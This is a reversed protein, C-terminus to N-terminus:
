CGYMEGFKRAMYVPVGNGIAEFLIRKWESNSVSDPKDKWEEPVTFGQHFACEALYMKRGYYGEARKFKPSYGGQGQAATIAPCIKM